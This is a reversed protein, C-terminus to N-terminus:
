VLKRQSENIASGFPDPASSSGGLSKLLKQLLPSAEIQSTQDLQKMVKEFENKNVNIPRIPRIKNEIENEDNTSEDVVGRSKLKMLDPLRNLFEPGLASRLRALQKPDSLANSDFGYLSAMHKLHSVTSPNLMSDKIFHGLIEDRQHDQIIHNQSQISDMQPSEWTRQVSQVTKPRSFVKTPKTVLDLDTSTETTLDSSTADVFSIKPTSKMPETRPLQIPPFLTPMNPVGLAPMPPLTPFSFGPFQQSEKLQQVATLRMTSDKMPTIPTIGDLKSIQPAPQHIAADVGNLNNFGGFQGFGPQNFPPPAMLPAPPPLPHFPVGITPFLFPNGFLPPPFTPFMPAVTAKTVVMGDRNTVDSGKTKEKKAKTNAMGLTDCGIEEGSPDVLRTNSLTLFGKNPLNAHFEVRIPLTSGHIPARYTHWKDSAGGQRQFQVEEGIEETVQVVKLETDDSMWVDFDIFYQGPPIRFVGSVMKEQGKQELAVSGDGNRWKGDLSWFCTTELFSCKVAKCSFTDDVLKSNKEPLHHDEDRHISDLSPFDPFHSSISNEHKDNAPFSRESLQIPKDEDQLPLKEEDMEFPNKNPRIVPQARRMEFSNIGIPREAAERGFNDSVAKSTLLPKKVNSTLVNTPVDKQDKNYKPEFGELENTEPIKDEDEPLALRVDDLGILDEKSHIGRARFVVSFPESSSPLDLTRKVWKEEGGGVIADICELRDEAIYKLCIDLIPEFASKWYSFRLQNTMGPATRLIPSILEGESSGYQGQVFAFRDNSKGPKIISHASDVFVTSGTHWIQSGEENPKWGCM